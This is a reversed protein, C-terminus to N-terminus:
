FILELTDGVLRFPLMVVTGVAHATAGLVSDPQDSKTTKTTTTTVPPNATDIPEAEASAYRPPQATRTVTTQTQETGGSCGQAIPMALVALAALVIKLDDWRTM